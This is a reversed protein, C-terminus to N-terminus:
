RPPTGDDRPEWQDLLDRAKETLAFREELPDIAQLYGEQVLWDVLGDLHHGPVPPEAFWRRRPVDHAVRHLIQRMVPEDEPTIVVPRHRGLCVDCTGCRPPATEGFYALLFHRRCTVSRAYRLMDALRAEARRRARRVQVDDVPLRASRPEAFLVQLARGPPQWALLGREELFALGRFLRARPLRTRAQLLRVDIEWWATFADAHVTRLLAEVFGALARNELRRALDRVANAPQLFRILGHHPRVPVPHWTEQRALLEIAARVKGTGFGTLRAIAELDLTVPTEPRSAVPIRALNCAADYVARVERAAPHAEAILARQTAEDPPHFLLVAYARRGDRGARGAEQYYSELSAPVDVHLVFRVDPKDIGMGFANTAVILRTEDRLWAEQVTARSGADLGAHYAAAPEGQERLWAAWREVGHRTAAYVIGSGPVSRVVELVKDRKNETRFISWVINPRDFGRVIVAPDRLGLHEVIDRRVQPTATATM